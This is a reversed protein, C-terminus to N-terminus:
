GIAADRLIVRQNNQFRHLHLVFDTGQAGADHTRHIHGRALPHLLARRQQHQALM